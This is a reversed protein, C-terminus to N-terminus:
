RLTIESITVKNRGDSATPLETVWVVISQTTTPEFSFSTTGSTFAGEALLTGGTPDDPSTARIEVNGGGGTGQIDIGSVQAAQELSVAVGLGAKGDMDPSVYYRSYWEEETSGDVLRDQLEPHEDNDGFPDLSEAGTIVIPVSPAPQEEGGGEQTPAASATPVTQAAPVDDESIRVKALQVLNSVALILAVLIVVIVGGLIWLTGRSTMAVDSDDGQEDYSPSITGPLM